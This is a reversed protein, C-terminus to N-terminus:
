FHFLDNELLWSEPTKASRIEMSNKAWHFDESSFNEAGLVWTPVVRDGLIRIGRWWWSKHVMKLIPFGLRFRWKHRNCGPHPGSWLYVDTDPPSASFCVSSSSSKMAWDIGISLPVSYNVLPSWMSGIQHNVVKDARRVIVISLMLFSIWHM